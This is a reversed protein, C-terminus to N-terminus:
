FSPCLIAHVFLAQEINSTLYTAGNEPKGISTDRLEIVGVNHSNYPIVKAQIEPPYTLGDRRVGEVVYPNEHGSFIKDM